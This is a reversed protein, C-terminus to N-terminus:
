LFQRKWLLFGHLSCRLLLLWHCLCWRLVTWSAIFKFEIWLLGCIVFRQKFVIATIHFILCFRNRAQPTLVPENLSSLQLYFLFENEIILISFFVIELLKVSGKSVCNFFSKITFKNEHEFNLCFNM